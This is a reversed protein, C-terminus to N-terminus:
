ANQAAPEQLSEQKPVTGDKTEASKAGNGENPATEDKKKASNTKANKKAAPKKKPLTPPNETGNESVYIRVADLMAAHKKESWSGLGLAKGITGAEAGAMPRQYLRSLEALYDTSTPPPVLGKDLAADLRALFKESGDGRADFLENQGFENYSTKTVLWKDGNICQVSLMMHYDIGKGGVMTEAMKIHKIAKSKDENDEFHAKEEGRMCIILHVPCRALYMLLDNHIPKMKQSYTDKKEEKEKLYGIWEDSFSDLVIADAGYAIAAEVAQKFRIPRFDEGFPLVLHDFGEIMQSKPIEPGLVETDIVVVKGSAGVIRRGIRIATHTKGGGGAGWILLRAKTKTRVAKYLSFGHKLQIKEPKTPADTKPTTM